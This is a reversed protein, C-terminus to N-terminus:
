QPSLESPRLTFPLISHELAEGECRSSTDSAPSASRPSEVLKETRGSDSLLTESSSAHLLPPKADFFEAGSEVITVDSRVRELPARKRALDLSHSRDRDADFREALLRDVRGRGHEQQLHEPLDSLSGARPRGASPCTPAVAAESCTAPKTLKRKKVLSPPVPPDRAQLKLHTPSFSRTDGRAKGPHVAIPPMPVTMPMLPLAVHHAALGPFSPLGPDFDYISPAFPPSRSASPFPYEFRPSIDFPTGVISSPSHLNLSGLDIRPKGSSATAQFPPLSVSQQSVANGQDVPVLIMDDLDPDPTPGATHEGPSHFSAETLAAVEPISQFDLHLCTSPVTPM